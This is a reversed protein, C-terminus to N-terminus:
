RHCAAFMPKVHGTLGPVVVCGFGLALDGGARYRQAHRLHDVRHATNCDYGIPHAHHVSAPLRPVCVDAVLSRPRRRLWEVQAWANCRHYPLLARRAAQPTQRGACGLKHPARSGLLRDPPPTGSTSSSWGNCSSTGVLWCFPMKSSTDSCCRGKHVRTKRM